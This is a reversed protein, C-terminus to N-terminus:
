RRISRSARTGPCREGTRGPQAGTLRPRRRRRSHPTRAYLRRPRAARGDRRTIRLPQGRTARQLKDIPHRTEGIQRGRAPRGARVGIREAQSGVATMLELSSKRDLMPPPFRESRRSPEPGRAGCGSQCLRPKRRTRTSPRAVSSGGARMDQRRAIPEAASSSAASAALAAACTEAIAREAPRLGEYIAGRRTPMRATDRLKTRGQAIIRM